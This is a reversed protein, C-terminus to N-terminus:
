HIEAGGRDRRRAKMSAMALGGSLVDYLRCSIAAAGGHFVAAVCVVVLMVEM